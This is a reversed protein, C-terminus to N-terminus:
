LYRYNTSRGLPAPVGPASIEFQRVGAVTDVAAAVRAPDAGTDALAERVAVAALEVPSLRRYGPEGIRESSQGVGVLVPTRPDLGEFTM